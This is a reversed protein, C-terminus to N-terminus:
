LTRCYNNFLEDSENEKIVVRPLHNITGNVARQHHSVDTVESSIDFRSFCFKDAYKHCCNGHYCWTM